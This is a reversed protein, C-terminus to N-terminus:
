SSERQSLVGAVDRDAEKLNSLRNPPVLIEGIHFSLATTINLAHRQIWPNYSGM